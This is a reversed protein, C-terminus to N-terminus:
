VPQPVPEEDPGNGNTYDEIEEMLKLLKEIDKIKKLDVQLILREIITKRGSDKSTSGVAEANQKKEKKLAPAKTSVDFKMGEFSKQLVEAPLNEEQQIGGTFTSMVKRGSLTLQSLPGVKADSFPLMNRINQLGAKVAEVPKSLGAKIGETFTDMIKKGSDRFWNIAGSIKNKVNQIGNQFKATIASLRGGTLKDVFTFGATYYGKVGEVAAAAIGRIGGGHQHYASKMNNLREKVTSFAAGMVNSIVNKVGNYANKFANLAAAGGTKIANWIGMVGNRFWECKNWLLAIVVILGVIALVIWTIPNALLASTFSWVGSILGPLATAATTIAQRGMAMISSGFGKVASIGSTWLKKGFGGVVGSFKVIGDKAYLAKIYLTEMGSHFRKLMHIAGVGLAGVRSLLLGFGGIVTSTVGAAMMLLGLTIVVTMIIRTLEQHNQIWNDAKEMVGSIKSMYETITPLMTNGMSEATNHIKQKLVDFKAPETSNIAAAMENTAATGKGLSGYMQVINNQLDGTKGYLLDILAVAEADGFATQLEMKEAADMTEGFKGRIKDLIEPMSMLQGNADVFNLGLEEGGKAASKLFAKYKTGAESGSMTAQLMGLISLQEELPAGATTASAGLSKIAEAMGNGTTKFNKVSESIGASFMGGFELDTMDSYYDKYIGYGTAFLDTMTAITAKTAIATQGSLTTYQAVGEDSLSSIGSKIDYAASIFEPKSTGVFTSSFSKAANEVKQLDQVGLSSLEGIARRTEFTAEVPQLVAQTIEKGTGALALGSQTMSSFGQSMGDLKSLSNSVNGSINKIPSSLNDIVSMIVSLKYVSEFGM